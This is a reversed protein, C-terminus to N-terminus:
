TPSISYMYEACKRTCPHMSKQISCCKTWAGFATMKLTKTDRRIMSTKLRLANYDLSDLNAFSVRPARSKKCAERLM